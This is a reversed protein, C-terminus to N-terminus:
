SEDSQRWRALRGYQSLAKFRDEVRRRDKSTTVILLDDGAKVLEDLAPAFPSGGRVILSVVSNKPLRIERISVGHLRSGEAVHVQMMDAQINDLPAFEFEVETADTGKSVGLVRAAWPLTPAQLLTYVVVFVFVMDFLDSAGPAGAALPVTAMIIPVAGRLGAWSVFAQERWPVKFWAACVVVCLPRAVFTVFAGIAIGAVASWWQIRTADALVGLMVFLGIQAIWGMGEAFSRIAARHPMEGNGLVVSAVYVAAFGSLHLAVGSGYALVAWGMAALPYLGSAPLAVRRMVWVGAFGIVLGLALGGVLEGVIEGVLAMPGGEMGHGLAWDTAMAVLLVIPADNCGSEAELTARVRNPLPVKRLVSFVAAADTPSTIAGLLIATPLDLGLVYFGFVAVLAVSVLVGITALLGAVPLAPKIERWRTTFGGEALIFVLALFGLSHALDADSFKLGLQGIVVGLGLFILLSPLGLGAGLRAALISALLIATGLLVVQDIEM